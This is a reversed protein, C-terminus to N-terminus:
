GDPSDLEAAVRAIVASWDGSSPQRILRLSPYWPSDERDVLWRWDAASQLLVWGPRGLAGALHAAATDVSIVADLACMAAATEHFDGLEAALDVIPLGRTTLANVDAAGEDLQLSFFTCGPVALLPPLRDAPCDRIAAAPNDPNGRWVLGVKRGGGARELRERWAAVRDPDASVYPVEGPITDLRTGLALPLSMLLARYDAAPLHDDLTLARAVGDVTAFLGVLEEPCVVVVNAGHEALLPAYRVFQIADGFGQETYLLLRKGQLPESGSWTPVISSTEPRAGQTSPRRWEYEKWGHEFDGLTLRTLGRNLRAAGNGPDRALVEDYCGLAERHRGLARLANGRNILAERSNPQLQLARDFTELAREYHGLAQYTNGLGIAAPADGRAEFVAGQLPLAETHRGLRALVTALSNQTDLDEPRLTLAAGFSGAAEEPRELELLVNGRNFLAEFYRPRAELAADLVKLAEEYRELKRLVLGRAALVDAAQPRLAAAEALLRDAEEMRGQQQTLLGLLALAEFCRPDAVLLERCRREAEVPNGSHALALAERVGATVTGEDDNTRGIRLESM